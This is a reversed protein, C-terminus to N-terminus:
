MMMSDIEKTLLYPKFNKQGNLHLSTGIINLTFHYKNPKINEGKAM